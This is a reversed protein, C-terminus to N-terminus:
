VTLARGFMAADKFVAYNISGDMLITRLRLPTILGATSYKRCMVPATRPGSHWRTHWVRAPTTEDRACLPEPALSRDFPLGNSAHRTKM